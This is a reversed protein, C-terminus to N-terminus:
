SRTPKIGPICPNKLIPFDIHYVMNVFQFIFVMNNDRYICLFGKVFNLVWKIYFSVLFCPCFPFVEDYYFDYLICVVAFMIRLPLFNFASERFEPILCPHGSEGNRNRKTKSTWAVAILSPFSIFTTWIPFVAFSDIDSSSM